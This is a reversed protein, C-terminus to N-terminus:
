NVFERRMLGEIEQKEPPLTFNKEEGPAHMM